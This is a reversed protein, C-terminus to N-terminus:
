GARTGPGFVYQTSRAINSMDTITTGVDEATIYRGCHSDVFRGFAELLEPTKAKRADGIIVAKGGGFPLQAM